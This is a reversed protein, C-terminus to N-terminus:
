RRTAASEVQDRGLDLRRDLAHFFKADADQVDEDLVRRRAERDIFVSIGVHGTIELHREVLDGTFIEGVHVRHFARVVHGGM